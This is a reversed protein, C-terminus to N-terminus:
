YYFSDVKRKRFRQPVTQNVFSHFLFQTFRIFYSEVGQLELVRTVEDSCVAVGGDVEEPLGPSLFM